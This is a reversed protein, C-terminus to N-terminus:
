ECVWVHVCIANRKSPCISCERDGLGITLRMPMHMAAGGNRRTSSNMPLPSRLWYRRLKRSATGGSEAKAITLMACCTADPKAKRELRFITWRSRAALNIQLTLLAHLYSLSFPFFRFIFLSLTHTHTQTYKLLRFM